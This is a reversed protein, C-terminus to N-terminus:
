FIKETQNSITKKKLFIGFYKRNITSCWMRNMLEKEDEDNEKTRGTM